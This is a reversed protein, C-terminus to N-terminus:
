IRREMGCPSLLLLLLLEPVLYIIHDFCIRISRIKSCLRRHSIGNPNEWCICDYKTKYAMSKYFTYYFCVYLRSINEKAHYFTCIPVRDKEERWADRKLWIRMQVNYFFVFRGMQGKTECELPICYIAVKVFLTCKDVSLSRRFNNIKKDM